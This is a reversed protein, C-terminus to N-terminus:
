VTMLADCLLAQHELERLRLLANLFPLLAKHPTKRAAQKEIYALVRLLDANIQELPTARTLSKMSRHVRLLEQRFIRVQTASLTEPKKSRRQFFPLLHSAPEHELIIGHECLACAIHRAPDNFLQCPRHAIWTRSGYPARPFRSPSKLATASAAEFIEETIDM